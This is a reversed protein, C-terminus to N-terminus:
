KKPLIANDIADSASEMLEFELRKTTDIEVAPLEKVQQIRSKQYETLPVEDRIHPAIFVLLESHIVQTNDASFLFGLLPLNGLLPIKNKTTRTEKQRLGGMILVQDNNMLLTTKTRRKDVIPVTSNGVGAVGTNISQQPEITMMIRNEDTIIAKVTLTLGVNKFQTSTIAGSTGTGGTSQTLETYPIEEVTEIIADQGSVVMVTPSALIETDRMTQLAHLSVDLGGAAYGIKGGPYTMDSGLDDILTQKSNFNGHNANGLLNDWNVGVDNENSLKVDVIVVEIQIQRPLRDAKRIQVLISDLATRSDSIILSNTEKDVAVNGFSTVMTKIVPEMNAAQLFRLMVTEMFLEPKPVVPGAPASNSGIAPMGQSENASAPLQAQAFPDQRGVAPPTAKTDAPTTQGLTCLLGLAIVAATKLWKNNRLIM